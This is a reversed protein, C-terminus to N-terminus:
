FVLELHPYDNFVNDMLSWDRNWDGGWRVTAGFKFKAVMQVITAFRVMEQKYKELERPDKSNWKIPCPVADIAFSPFSNHKSEPWKLKSRGENFAKNQEEEGRHGQLIKHDIGLDELVYTMIQTWLYHATALQNLSHTSFYPM